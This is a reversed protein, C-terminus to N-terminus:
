PSTTTASSERWRGRSLGIVGAKAAVYHTQGQVGGHVSGSSFTVIRGWAQHKMLPVFARAMLFCGTLNITLVNQWDLYTMEEFEVIPFFGACNLPVDVRHLAHDAHNALAAAGKPSSVDAVLTIL